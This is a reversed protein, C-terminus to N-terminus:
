DGRYVAERKAIPGIRAIEFPVEYSNDTRNPVRRLLGLAVLKAGRDALQLDFEVCQNGRKLQTLLQTFVAADGPQLKELLRRAKPQIKVMSPGYSRQQDVHHVQPETERVTRSLGIDTRLVEKKGADTARVHAAILRAISVRPRTLSCNLRCMTAYLATASIKLGSDSLFEAIAVVRYGKDRMAVIDDKLLAVAELRTLPREGNLPDYEVVPVERLKKSLAALAVPTLSNILSM